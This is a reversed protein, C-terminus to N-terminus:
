LTQIEASFGHDSRGTGRGVLRKIAVDVGDPMSGRYVIGAGGKGIINEEKLCELVDDAKCDLRQFATLKWDRSKHLRKKTISYITDILLLLATILSIISIILQSTSFATNGECTGQVGTM